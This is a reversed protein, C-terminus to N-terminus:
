FKILSKEKIDPGSTWLAPGFGSRPHVFLRLKAIRPNLYSDNVIEDTDIEKIIYELYRMIHNLIVDM